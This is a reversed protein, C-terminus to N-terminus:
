WGLVSLRDDVVDKRLVTNLVLMIVIVRIGCRQMKNAFGRLCAFSIHEAPGPILYIM